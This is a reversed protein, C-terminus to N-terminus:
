IWTCERGPRGTGVVTLKEKTRTVGVYWVRREDDENVYAEGKTRKAMDLFLVVHEAEAGKAGHITSVRVRPRARLKEGRRRAALLYSMLKSPLRDMGEHWIKMRDSGQVAAMEEYYIIQPRSSAYKVCHEAAEASVTKGARLDEWTQISELVKADVSPRDFVSYVIGERQLVPIVTDHLVYLNRALILVEGTGVDVQSFDSHRSIVGDADRPSWQKEKRVSVPRIVRSAIEQVSRPVRWSQDLIRSEGSQDLFYEVEAGAWRYIAQDDDGAVVLRQANEALKRVVAWQLRSLDQVEDVVLLDLEPGPMGYHLWQELMGTYDVVRKEACYKQHADWFYKVSNYPIGADDLNYQQRLDVQRVRAMNCIHLARDGISYGYRSDDRSRKETVRMGVYNSFDRMVTGTMVDGPRLGLLRYCTSHLTRFWPFDEPIRNFQVCAREVAEAAAAKTFSVYGIRNPMTGASLYEEVVRLLATTKGTGPPGFIVEM